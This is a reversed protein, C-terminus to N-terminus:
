PGLFDREFLQTSSEELLYSIIHYISHKEKEIQWIVPFPKVSCVTVISHFKALEENIQIM